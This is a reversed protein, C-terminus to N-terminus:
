RVIALKGYKRDNETRVEYIYIGGSVRQNNNDRLDWSIAGFSSEEEIKRILRGNLNYIRITAQAPLNAFYVKEDEPRVPQPYLLFTQLDKVPKFLSIRGSEKLLTGEASHLNQLTLYSPKGFAGAMSQAPLVIEVQQGLSDVVNVAEIMGAPELRYNNKDTLDDLRMPESFYLQVHYRDPLEYRRLYPQPAQPEVWFSAKNFRRDVPIRGRSFINTVTVTDSVNVPLPRAFAALLAHKDAFLVAAVANEGSSQIQIRYPYDPHIAVPQDFILKLQTANLVLASILRPPYATVISDIRSLPSEPVSYSSDLASAAYYYATNPLLLSDSFQNQALTVLPKLDNWDTGRYLRYQEAGSVTGWHMRIHTSDAEDIVFPFPALPRSGNAGSFGIVANGDNFYFEDRGDSNFDAVLVTNSRAPAYHWIPVLSDSEVRFVYLNPYFAAFLLPQGDLRGTYVGSDFERTSRYGYFHVAASALLTDQATSLRFRELSWHRADFEHEYDLEDPTHSGAFLLARPDASLMETADENVTRGTGLLKYQNDGTSTYIILDGDYDGFVIEIRGDENLDSQAIRPVGFNNQGQTPNPLVATQEFRNDGAYEMIVYDKDRYGILENKGDGDSDGYAAPWFDSSDQWITRLAFSGASETELIYANKGYALLIDPLGNGNVDGADRPIAKFDTVARQVFHDSDFEYIEVPGFAYDEDYRSLLCEQKGDKDLDIPKSLMYGAPLKWPVPTFSQFQFNEELRFDFLKGSNDARSLLGSGNEAEIYFSYSGPYANQTLKISHNRTEYGLDIVDTVDPRDKPRVYLRAGTVDDTRFQILVAGQPGDYLNIVQVGSIEPATRDIYVTTRTEDERGNLLQMQMRIVLTTDSYSAIDVAGLTDSFVQRRDEDLVTFWEQPQKGLGYSVSAQLIDPHVISGVLWLKDGAHSSEPLPQRLQIAGGESTLVAGIASLRGAGSYYDWGKSLVDKASTKLINRIQGNSYESNHSLLLGAVASVLPASFSTGNVSNYGGGIATSLMDVGPAIVDLTNGYNSFGALGDAPTSAGVSIVEPLGSPYHAADSASNGAAAIFLIGEQAAYYIVEKLFRSLAVDGFSMNVIRAGNDLAYLIANAVDDEELYGAATGARLNMVRVGPATGSIGRGNGNAAVIIGAVQTGHGTGYEDMPDNDQDLYDGGDPFRPADTFDWGLSDDVFGNGDDDVGPLGNLESRNVWLGPRIDPHRYDIGTDIVGILVSSDGKTYQWAQQAGITQLYWQKDLLSDGASNNIRFTKVEEFYDIWGQQRLSDLFQPSPTTYILWRYFVPATKTSLIAPQFRSLTDASLKKSLGTIQRLGSDLIQSRRTLGKETLRIFYNGASALTLNSLLLILLFRYQIKM